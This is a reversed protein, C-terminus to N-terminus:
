RQQQRQNGYQQHLRQGRQQGPEPQRERGHGRKDIAETGAQAAPPGPLGPRPRLPHNRDAQQRYQQSRAQRHAQTRRQGVKNRHGPDAQGHQWQCQQASQQQRQAPYPLCQEPQRSTQEIHEEPQQLQHRLLLRRPQWCNQRQPGPQQHAQTRQQNQHGTAYWQAPQTAYHQQRQPYGPLRHREALDLDPLQVDALPQRHQQASPMVVQQVVGPRGPALAVQALPHHQRGQALQPHAAQVQHQDAVGMGVVGTTSACDHTAQRDFPHDAAFQQIVQLQLRAYTALLPHPIAHAKRHPAPGIPLAAIVAGTHQQDLRLTLPQQQRSVHLGTGFPGPQRGRFCRPDVPQLRRMVAAATRGALGEDAGRRRAPYQNRPPAVVAEPVRMRLHDFTIPPMPHHHM